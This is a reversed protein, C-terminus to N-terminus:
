ARSRLLHTAYTEARGSLADAAVAALIIAGQIAREWYASVDLFTLAPGIAGLFVVGLATGMITGKGGTISTGGLATAAIVKMELGIGANAPIQNFRASNLLAALGTLTGLIVFASLKVARTDIGALRAADPDSGTAYMVRAAVLHRSAWAFTGLLAAAVAAVVVPYSRQTFGLWQFEAPLDHVWEGQTIWRLAERLVIMTALTVVISPVRVYSTLWGNVLGLAAGLGATALLVVGLPAGSKALTGAAIGCVAFASGISIDIEGTVILLTMGLAIILVPLNALFLDNLNAATFFGPATVVLLLGLVFIGFAVAAERRYAGMM